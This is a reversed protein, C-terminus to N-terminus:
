ERELQNNFLLANYKAQKKATPLALSSAFGNTYVYISPSIKIKKIGTGQFLRNSIHDIEGIFRGLSYKRLKKNNTDIHVADITTDLSSHFQFVVTDRLLKPNDLKLSNIDLCDLMDGPLHEIYKVFTKVSSKSEKYAIRAAVPTDRKNICKPLLDDLNDEVKSLAQKIAKLDKKDYKIVVNMAQELNSESSGNEMNANSNSKSDVHHVCIVVDGNDYEVISGIKIDLAENNSKASPDSYIGFKGHGELYRNVVQVSVAYCSVLKYQDNFGATAIGNEFSAGKACEVLYKSATKKQKVIDEKTVDDPTRYKDPATACLEKPTPQKLSAEVVDIMGEKAASNVFDIYASPPILREIIEREENTTYQDKWVRSAAQLFAVEANNVDDPINALIKNKVSGFLTGLKEAYKLELDYAVTSKYVDIRNTDQKKSSNKGLFSDLYYTIDNAITKKDANTTKKNANGLLFPAIEVGKTTAAISLVLRRDIAVANYIDDSQTIRPMMPIYRSNSFVNNYFTATIDLVESLDEIDFKSAIEEYIGILQKIREHKDQIQNIKDIREVIQPQGAFDVLSAMHGLAEVVNDLRKNSKPNIRTINGLSQILVVYALIGSLTPKHVLSEHVESLKKTDVKNDVFWQYLLNEITNVRERDPDTLNVLINNVGDHMLEIPSETNYFTKEKGTNELIEKYLIPIEGFVDTENTEITELVSRFCKFTTTRLTELSNEIDYIEYAYFSKSYKRLKNITDNIEQVEPVDFKNLVDFAPFIDSECIELMERVKGINDTSYNGRIYDNVLDPLERLANEIKEFEDAYARYQSDVDLIQNTFYPYLENIEKERQVNNILVDYNKANRVTDTLFILLATKADIIKHNDVYEVVKPFINYEFNQLLDV